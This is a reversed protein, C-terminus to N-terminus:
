VWLYLRRSVREKVGDVDFGEGGKTVERVRGVQVVVVMDDKWWSCEVM